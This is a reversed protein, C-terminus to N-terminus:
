DSQYAPDYPLRSEQVDAADSSVQYKKCWDNSDWLDEQHEKTLKDGDFIYSKESVLNWEFIDADFLYLNSASIWHENNQKDRLTVAQKAMLPLSSDKTDIYDIRENSILWEGEGAILKGLVNVDQNESTKYSYGEDFAKIAESTLPDRSDQTCGASLLIFPLFILLIKKM